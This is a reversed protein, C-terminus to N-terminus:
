LRLHQLEKRISTSTGLDKFAVNFALAVASFPNPYAIRSASTVTNRPIIWMWLRKLTHTPCGTMTIAM